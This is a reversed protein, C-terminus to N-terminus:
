FHDIKEFSWKVKNCGAMSNKKTFTKMQKNHDSIVQNETNVNLQALHLQFTNKDKNKLNVTRPMLHQPDVHGPVVPKEVDDLLDGAVEEEEEKREERV